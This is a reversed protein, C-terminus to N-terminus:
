HTIPFARLLGLLVGALIVIVGTLRATLQLSLKDITADLKDIRRELLAIDSKVGGRLETLSGKLESIDLKTAVGSAVFGELADCQVESMALAHEKPVGAAELKGVYRQTNFYTISAM